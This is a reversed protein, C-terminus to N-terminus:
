QVNYSQLSVTSAFDTDSITYKVIGCGRSYSIEYVFDPAESWGQSVVACDMFTGAPTSETKAIDIVESPVIMLSDDSYYWNQGLTLPFKLELFSYNSSTSSYTRLEEDTKSLYIFSTDPDEENYYSISREEYVPFGDEHELLDTIRRELLYSFYTTDPGEIWMDELEYIWWNGVTLPKWSAVSSYGAPGSCAALALLFLISFLLTVRLM